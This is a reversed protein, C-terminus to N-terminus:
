RGLSDPLTNPGTPEAGVWGVDKISMMEQSKKLGRGHLHTSRLVVTQIECAELKLFSNISFM